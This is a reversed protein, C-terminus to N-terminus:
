SFVREKGGSKAFRISGTEPAFSSDSLRIFKSTVLSNSTPTEPHWGPAMRVAIRTANPDTPTPAEHTLVQWNSKRPVKVDGVLWGSNSFGDHNEPLRTATVGAPALAFSQNVNPEQLHVEWPPQVDLRFQFADYTTAGRVLKGTPTETLVGWGPGIPTKLKRGLGSTDIVENSGTVEIGHIPQNGAGLERAIRQIASTTDAAGAQSNPTLTEDLASYCASICITALGGRTALGNARLWLVVREAKMENDPDDAPDGMELDGGQGGHVNIRLKSRFGPDNLWAIVRLATSNVEFRKVSAVTAVTAVYGDAPPLNDVPLPVLTRTEKLLDRRRRIFIKQAALSNGLGASREM